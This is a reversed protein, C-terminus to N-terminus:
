SQTTQTKFKSFSSNLIKKLCTVYHVDGLNFRNQIESLIVELYLEKLVAGQDIITERDRRGQDIKILVTKPFQGLHFSIYM